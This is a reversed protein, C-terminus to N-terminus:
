LSQKTQAYSSGTAIPRLLLTLILCAGAIAACILFAINYSSTIDFIFGLVLPGIAAGISGVVATAGLIVGHAKLGFLEAVTPPLLTMIGGHAFGFVAAFLYLMWLEQSVILWLLTVTLLAFGIAMTTKNGIKDATVGMVIMGAITTLGIIALSNVGVGISFGQGIAHIVIHVSIAVVCFLLAFYLSCVQWFQFTQLARKLSITTNGQAPTKQVVEQEDHHLRRSGGPSSKLFQAAIITALLTVIGLIVLAIRWQYISMLWGTIPPMIMKGVGMGSLVIGTMLGRRKEFWRAVLSLMSIYAGMGTGILVGFFLYLQWASNVQSMLLYGAGLLLACASATKRPNIADALRAVLLGSLGTLMNFLSYAGSTLARTWGFELLWSEFFVGFTNSMGWMILMFVFIAAVIIYGYFIRPSRQSTQMGERTLKTQELWQVVQYV